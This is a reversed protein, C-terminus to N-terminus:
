FNLFFLVFKTHNPQMQMQNKHRLINHCIYDCFVHCLIEIIQNCKWHRHSLIKHLWMHRILVLPMLVWLNVRILDTNGGEWDGPRKLTDIIQVSKDNPWFEEMRFKWVNRAFGFGMWSWAISADLQSSVKFSGSVRKFDTPEFM